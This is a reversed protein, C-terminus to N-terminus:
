EDEKQKEATFSMEEEGVYVTGDMSDGDFEMEFSLTGAEIEVNGELTTKELKIDELELAGFDKTEISVELKKEENRTITMEGTETGNPTEVEYDWVGVPDYDAVNNSTNTEITFATLTLTLVVLSIIKQIKKM